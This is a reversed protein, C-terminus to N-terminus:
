KKIVEYHLLITGAANLRRVSLLRLRATRIGGTFMSRGRGFILPEVTIYIEDLLGLDLIKQYVAAGGLVAVSKFESLVDELSIVAPNIFSVSGRRIIKAPRSSIVFTRRKRLRSAAVKYTNRGVLVADFRSLSNQFFDWDERSTWDPRTKKALSIRGDASAAALAVFRTKNKKLTKKTM